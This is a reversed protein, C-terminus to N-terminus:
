EVLHRRIAVAVTEARTSTGLKGLISSVHFKVTSASIRLREAIAPNSLGEVLLALVESERGTLDTGPHRQGVSRVLYEQAEAALATHGARAAVIARVLEAPETDKKLYGIAGAGLARHALEDSHRSTLGIVQTHPSGARIRQLADGWDHLPLDLDMLVVDPALHACLEAAVAGDAAESLTGIAPSEALFVGLGRRVVAQADVILVSVPRDASRQQSM